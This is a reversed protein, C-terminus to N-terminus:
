AMLGTIQGTPTLNIKEAAPFKPLAPMRLTAGALAVLFGAGAALEFDRVTITFDRPRNLRAPDDTLSLPTKAVCVPLAGFGCRTFHALKEKASDTLTVGSGGYVQTAIAHLKEEATSDLPYLPQLSTTPSERLAARVTEALDIVGPGGSGFPDAKAVPTGRRRCHELLVQWEEPSDTPFHNLAVIAKLGFRAAADLHADLNELGRATAAPDPATLAGPDAGGHLKLARITAVIITADPALGSARCKLHLFKEAGLDFGFGAETIAFDASALAM